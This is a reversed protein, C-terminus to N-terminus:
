QKELVYTLDTHEWALKGLSLLSVTRAFLYILVGRLAGLILTLDM